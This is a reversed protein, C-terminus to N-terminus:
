HRRENGDAARKRLPQDREHSGGRFKSSDLGNGSLVRPRRIPSSAAQGKPCPLLPPERLASLFLIRTPGLVPAVVRRPSHLDLTEYLLGWGFSYASVSEPAVCIGTQALVAVADPGIPRTRRLVHEVRSGAAFKRDRQLAM